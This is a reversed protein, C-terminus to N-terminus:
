IVVDIRFRLKNYSSQLVGENHLFTDKVNPCICFNILVEIFNLFKEFPLDRM